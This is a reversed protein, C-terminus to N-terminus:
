LSISQNYNALLCDKIRHITINNSLQLCSNAETPQFSDLAKSRPRPQETPSGPIELAISNQRQVSFHYLQM